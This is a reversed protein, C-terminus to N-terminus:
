IVYILNMYVNKNGYMLMAQLNFYVSNELKFNYLNTVGSMKLSLTNNLPPPPPFGRKKRLKNLIKRQFATM